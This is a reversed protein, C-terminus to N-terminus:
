RLFSTPGRGSKVRVVAGRYEGDRGRLRREIIGLKWMGRPTDDHIVVIDGVSMKTTNNPIKRQRQLERLELLYEQKWRTWFHQLITNLYLVRRNLTVRSSTSYDPDSDMNESYCLHDPIALLRKGMILHSPTLPEDLDSASHVTLPRSNLIAEVETVATYLEEYSLRARGVLKRFCRKMLQVMREFFGGWWPAREVNFIWKISVDFLYKKVEPHNVTKLLEKSASKFTSGNDSIICSPFGRRSVFRKLCRLFSLPTLDTVIEFHVARSVSCTFLCVWAKGNYTTYTNQTGQSSTHAYHKIVLPGAYDVGITTFPNSEKVRFRPLPPPPINYSSAAYRRCLVCQNIFRRVFARGQPIWYKSRIEMLTDKIGSHMVRCHARRVVLLTFLHDRPLVIPHIVDYPLEANDLRGGCRWINQADRFMMFQEKWEKRIRGSQVELIWLLEAKTKFKEMQEMEFSQVVEDATIRTRVKLNELFLLIYATSKILKEYTSFREISMIAGIGERSENMSLFVNDRDKVRLEELCEKPLTGELVTIECVSERIWESGHFWVRSDKLEQLTIGRSPLDAPNNEGICHYWQESDVRERIEKVRNQVFPKWNKETGKIWHLVITSDTFCRYGSVIDGLVKQVRVILRALLLAGLLELRPITHVQLPAVRTKSAVLSCHKNEDRIYVVAAYAKVSADCFGLLLINGNRKPLYCRPIKLMNKVWLGLALKKWREKLPDSLPEDWLLKLQCLEQFLKFNIVVPAILGIPDYIKSVVSVVNRKTPEIHMAEKFIPEVEVVFEDSDVDWVVGLVKQEGM